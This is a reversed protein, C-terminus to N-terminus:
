RNLLNKAPSTMFYISDGHGIPANLIQPISPIFLWSRNNGAIARLHFAHGNKFPALVSMDVPM